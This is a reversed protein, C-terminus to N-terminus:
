NKAFYAELAHLNNAYIEQQNLEEKTIWKVEAIEGDSFNFNNEPNKLHALFALLFHKDGTRTQIFQETYILPGIEIKVGLEEEVERELCEKATEGIHLRGGVIDWRNADEADRSILVKNDKIIIARVSVKGIFHNENQM